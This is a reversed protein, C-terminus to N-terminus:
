DYIFAKARQSLFQGGPKEQNYYLADNAGKGRMVVKGKAESYTLEDSKVYSTLNARMEVNGDANMEHLASDKVPGPVASILMKECAIYLGEKPMRKEDLPMAVDDGPVHFTRVNKWFRLTGESKRYEMEEEFIVRTLKLQLPSGGPKAAGVNPQGPASAGGQGPLNGFGAMQNQGARVLNVEGPGFVKIIEKNKTSNDFVVQVGEIRLIHRDPTGPKVRQEIVVPNVRQGVAGQALSNCIVSELAVVQDNPQKNFTDDKGSLSMPKDLTITMSHCRLNIDQKQAIVSGTFEAVRGGFKMKDTWVFTVKEPRIRINGQADKLPQGTAPDREEILDNGQFDKDTSFQFEGAGDIMIMNENQDLDIQQGEVHYKENNIIARNGFLKVRYLDTNGQLSMELRQGQIDIGNQKGPDPKREIHVNERAELRRVVQQNEGVLLIDGDIEAAHLYLPPSNPPPNMVKTEPKGLLNPNKDPAPAPADFGDGSKQMAFGAPAETFNLTLRRASPIVLRTSLVQVKQDVEVRKLKANLRETGEVPAPTGAQPKEDTKKKDSVLWAKVQEGSMRGQKEHMLVANGYLEIRHEEATRHWQLERQWSALTYPDPHAISPRLRVEGPGNILLGCPDKDEADSAPLLIKVVGQAIIDYEMMRAVVQDKGRLRAEHAVNDVILEIGEAHLGNGQGDENATIKVTKGTAVAKKLEFQKGSEEVGAQKETKSKNKSPPLLELVLKEDADLEDYQQKPGAPGAITRHRLGNVNTNFTAVNTPVDYTFADKCRIVMPQASQQQTVVVPKDEPKGVAGGLISGNLKFFSFQVDRDLQISKVASIGLGEPKDGKAKAKAADGEKPVLENALKITLGSGVFRAEEPFAYVVQVEYDCWVRKQADVFDVRQKCYMTIDDNPEPTGHNHTLKIVDGEIHGEIPKVNSKIEFPSKIPQNFKIVAVKGQVTTIEERAPLKGEPPIIKFNALSVETLRLVGDELTWEDFALVTRSEPRGIEVSRFRNLEPCKPGFARELLKAIEHKRNDSDDPKPVYPGASANYRYEPPLPPLGDYHGLFYSYIEYAGFCVVFGLVLLLLRRPKIM